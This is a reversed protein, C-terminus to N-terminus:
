GRSGSVGRRRRPTAALEAPLAVPGASLLCFEPSPGLVMQRRWLASGPASLTAADALEYFAEYPMGDPKSLWTEWGATGDPEGSRIAYLAGAGGASLKAVADHAQRCAGDVGSVNLAGLAAHDVVHYRDAYHPTGAPGWPLEPTEHAWSGVLGPSGHAALAEHFEALVVEYRAPAVSPRPWHFFLYALM